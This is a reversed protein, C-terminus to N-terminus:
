KLGFCFLAFFKREFHRRIAEIFNHFKILGFISKTCNLCACLIQWFETNEENKLRSKMINAFALFLLM